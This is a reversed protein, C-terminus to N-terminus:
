RMVSQLRHWLSGEHAVGQLAVFVGDACIAGAEIELQDVVIQTVFRVPGCATRTLHHDTGYFVRKRKAYVFSLRLCAERADHSVIGGEGPNGVYEDQGLMTATSQRLPQHFDDDRM